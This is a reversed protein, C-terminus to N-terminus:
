ITDAIEITHLLSCTEAESLTATCGFSVVEGLVQELVSFMASKFGNHFIFIESLIGELPSQMAETIRLQLTKSWKSLNKEVIAEIKPKRM